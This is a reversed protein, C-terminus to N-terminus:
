LVRVSPVGRPRGQQESFDLRPPPLAPDISLGHVPSPAQPPLPPLGQGAASGLTLLVAVAATLM